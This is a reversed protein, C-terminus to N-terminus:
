NRTLSQIGVVNAPPNYVMGNAEINLVEFNSTGHVNPTTPSLLTVQGKNNTRIVWTQQWGTTYWSRAVIGTYIGTIAAGKVPKNLGNVVTLLTKYYIQKGAKVVSMKADKVHMVILPNPPATATVTISKTDTLGFANVVTLKVKFTGVNYFTRFSNTGYSGADQDDWIYNVIDGGNGTSGKASFNVNLPAQGTVTDATIDATPNVYNVGAYTGKISYQGVSGYTSYSETGDARVSNGSEIKLYYVGETVDVDITRSWINKVVVKGVSNGNADLLTVKATLKGIELKLPGTMANMVYM